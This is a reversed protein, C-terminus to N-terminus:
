NEPVKLRRRRGAGPRRFLTENRAILRRQSQLGPPTGGRGRVGRAALGATADFYPKVISTHRLYERLM